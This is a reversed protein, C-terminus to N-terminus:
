GKELLVIAFSAIGEGKGIFGLGNQTTAKVSIKDLGIKLTRSINKRMKDTYNALKPKEAVITTDINVLKAKEQKLIKSVDPLLKMSSIGKYKKDTDPFHKGIDGQALAGLIADCISHLLADGDSHGLLGRSHPIEVGGLILKRGKTFKHVDYGFGVRLM